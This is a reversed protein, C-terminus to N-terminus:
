VGRTAPMVSHTQEGREPIVGLGTRVPLVPLRCVVHQAQVTHEAAAFDPFPLDRQGWVPPHRLLDPRFFPVESLHNM